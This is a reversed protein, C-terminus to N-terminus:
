EKESSTPPSGETQEDYARRKLERKVYDDLIARDEPSVMATDDTPEADRALVPLLLAVARLNGAVAERVFAKILARQRTVKQGAVTVEEALEGLLDAIFSPAAKPRGTPNGSKGPTFRSQAPPRGYGVADTGKPKDVMELVDLLISIYL